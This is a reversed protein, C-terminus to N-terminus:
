IERLAYEIEDSGLCCLYPLTYSKKYQVEDIFTYRVAKIRLKASQLNTNTSLSKLYDIIPSRWDFVDIIMVEPKKEIIPQDMHEVLIGVITKPDFLDM